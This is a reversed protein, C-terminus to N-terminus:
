YRSDYKSIIDNLNSFCHDSLKGLNAFHRYNYEAISKLKDKNQKWDFKALSNILNVIANVRDQYNPIIDYSEDWIKDFTKFGLNRLNALFYQTGMLVFPIGAILAKVTKETMFFDNELDIDSEIILKFYCQNYLDIPITNSITFYHEPIVYRYSDFVRNTPVMTDLYQSQSGLDKGSYKLFFNKVNVKSLIENVVYTRQSRTTGITACFLSPKQEEFKYFKDFYFSFRSPSFYEDAYEFLFFYYYVLDYSFNLKVLNKDWQSNCFIIYHKSTDYLDFYDKSHLGEVLANIAVVPFQCSNIADINTYHLCHIGTNSCTIETANFKPQCFKKNKRWLNYKYVLNEIVINDNIVFNVM